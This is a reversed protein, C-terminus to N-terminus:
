KGKARDRRKVIIQYWQAISGSMAAVAAIIGVIDTKYRAEAKDNM